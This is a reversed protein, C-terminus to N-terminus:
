CSSTDSGEHLQKWNNIKKAEEPEVFHRIEQFLKEAVEPELESIESSSQVQKLKDESNIGASDLAEIAQDGM